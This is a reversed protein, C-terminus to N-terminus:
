FKYALWSALFNVSKAPPNDHLVPGAFFHAYNVAWTLHRNIRWEIQATAQSGVYRSAGKVGSRAVNQGIGYVGDQSSERWFFDWDTTLTVTSAPHLELTPHLDIHNQPGILGTEAFYGGRPFLPNFTELDPDQRDRDGSTADAKFGLRPAWENAAFTYGTDTAVTWASIRGGGFDGFQYVFEYNWDWRSHKGWLRTGLSHRREHATGQAFTASDRDLGFYYLDFKGGPLLPFPAVGYCGWFEATPDPVDDLVGEGIRVPRMAFSNLQWDRSTFSARVGDFARRVNPADRLSVLRQSGFALEQRGSRLTVSQGGDLPTGIDAFLQHIDFEDRDTPRPGGNRGADLGAQAETFLRFHEGAHLDGHLMYRQLLYGNDDQPGAGWNAHDFYEYRERIEGGLSLWASGGQSLSIFKWREFPHNRAAPDRLWSWDEDQRSMRFRPENGQCVTTSIVALCVALPAPPLRM